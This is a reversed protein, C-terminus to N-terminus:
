WEIGWTFHGRSIWEPRHDFLVDAVERDDYDRRINVITASRMTYSLPTSIDDKFLLHDFVKVRKGIRDSDEMM